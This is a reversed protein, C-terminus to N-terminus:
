PVLHSQRSTVRATVADVFESVDSRIVLDVRGGLLEMRAHDDVVVITGAGRLGALAEHTHSGLGIYVPPALTRTAPGFERQWPAEGLEVADPTAALHAGTVDLLRDIAGRTRSDLGPGVGVVVRAGSLHVAAIMDTIEGTRAHAAPETAEDAVITEVIPEGETRLRSVSHHGPRLTGISTATHAIVPAIVGATMAPKLWLLDPEGTDAGRVELGTFDGTLGLGLRAAVRPAYDRGRASFPAIVAYPAKEAIETSLVDVWRDTSYHELSPSQLVVVRDAGYEYLGRPLSGAESCPVIAVTSSQLETAVSRACVLAEFTAPHPTGDPLPEVIVWVQRSSLAETDGAEDVASVDPLDALIDAVAEVGSSGEVQVTTRVAADDRIELVFTPSGRTGFTKAEGGLDEATLTEIESLDTTFHAPPVAGRGISVLAPLGLEWEEAGVDTEVQCCVVGADDVRMSSVQTLQAFGVLEAVQPGVQGTAGDLSWRGTVILDVKERRAVMAIARATALTDAGAFRRDNLHIGHDAGRRLADVIAGKADPPGMTMAIITGGTSNRVTLAHGLAQLDAPNTIVADEKREIRKTRENFSAAGPAPVQKLCVLIRLESGTATM